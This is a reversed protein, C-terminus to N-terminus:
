PRPCGCRCRRTRDAVTRRRCALARTRVADPRVHRAGKASRQAESLDRKGPDTDDEAGTDVREDPRGGRLAPLANHSEDRTAPKTAPESMSAASMRAVPATVM